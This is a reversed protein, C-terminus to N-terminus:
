PWVREIRAAAYPEGTELDCYDLWSMMDRIEPDSLGLARCAKVSRRASATSSRASRGDSILTKIAELKTM